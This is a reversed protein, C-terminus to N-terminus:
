FLKEIEKIIRDKGNNDIYNESINNNDEMEIEKAFSIYNIKKIKGKFKKLKKNQAIKAFQEQHHNHYM